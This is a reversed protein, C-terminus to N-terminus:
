VTSASDLGIYCYSSICTVAFAFNLTLICKCPHSICSPKYLGRMYSTSNGEAYSISAIMMAALGLRVGSFRLINLHNSSELARDVDMVSQFEVQFTRSAEVKAEPEATTSPQSSRASYVSLDCIRTFRRRFGSPITALPSISPM